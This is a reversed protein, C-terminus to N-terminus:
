LPSEFPDYAPTPAPIPPLLADLAAVAARVVPDSSARAAALVPEFPHPSRWSRDQVTELYAAIEDDGTIVKREVLDDLYERMQRAKDWAHYTTEWAAFRGAATADLTAYFRGRMAEPQAQINVNAAATENIAAEEAEELTAHLFSERWQTGSGIGTEACMYYVRDDPDADGGWGFPRSKAEVSGVTLTRVTFSATEYRLSPIERGGVRSFHRDGCRMCDVVLEGGAPTKFPWLKTGLCDPCPHSHTQRGRETVYVTQGVRYKPVPLDSQTQAESM